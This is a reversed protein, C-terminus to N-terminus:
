QWYEALDAYLDADRVMAKLVGPKDVSSVAAQFPPTEGGKWVLHNLV